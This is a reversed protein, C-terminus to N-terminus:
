PAYVIIPETRLDPTDARWRVSGFPRELRRRVRSRTDPVRYADIAEQLAMDSQTLRSRQRLYDGWTPCHYRETWLAPDAVDRAISWEFAGSRLRATQVKMMLDYFHRAHDPEIAYEIEVVVPGSRTTLALAVEPERAIEVPEIEAASVRPMPLLLGLVPTLMMAAGSLVVAEGVGVEGAVHGWLFAGIAIGGTLSSQYWSLARATV